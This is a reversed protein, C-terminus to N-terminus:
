RNILYNIFKDPSMIYTKSNIHNLYRKVSRAISVSSEPDFTQMPDVMDRVYDLESAIIDIGLMSAEVLPLGYSEFKSPYILVQSNALKIMLDERLINSLIEIDLNHNARTNVIEKYIKSKDDITLTLKPYIEEEALLVWAAILNKHNKHPEASAIYIFGTKVRAHVSHSFADEKFDKFPVVTTSTNLNSQKKILSQMSSSQVIIEDVKNKYLKFILRQINIQIRTLLSMNSTTSNEVVYRNQQLLFTRASFTIFPPLNGFFIILDYSKSLKKIKFQTFFRLVKPVKIFQINKSNISLDPIEFRYDVWFIFKINPYADTGIIFDNLMIKGGGSHINSADIYFIM